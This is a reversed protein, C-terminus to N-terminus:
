WVASADRSPRTVSSPRLLAPTGASNRAPGGPDDETDEADAPDPPSWDRDPHTNAPYGGSAYNRFAESQLYNRSM